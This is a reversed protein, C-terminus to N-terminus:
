LLGTGRAFAPLPLRSKRRLRSRHTALPTQEHGAKGMGPAAQTSACRRAFATRGRLRGTGARRVVALRGDGILEFTCMQPVTRRIALTGTGGDGVSFRSQAAAPVAQAAAAAGPRSGCASAPRLQVVKQAMQAVLQSDRQNAQARALGIERIATLARFLTQDGSREQSRGCQPMGCFLSGGRRLKKWNTCRGGVRCLGARLM